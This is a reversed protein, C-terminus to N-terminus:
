VCGHAAFCRAPDDVTHRRAINIDQDAGLDDSFSMIERTEGLDAHDIGIAAQLAAVQAGALPGILQEALDGTTRATSFAWAPSQDLGILRVIWGHPGEGGTVAIAEQFNLAIDALFERQRGKPSHGCHDERRWIGSHRFLNACEGAFGRRMAIPDGDIAWGGGRDADQAAAM